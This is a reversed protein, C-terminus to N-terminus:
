QVGAIVVKFVDPKGAKVLEFAEEAQEFNFRNTILRKVDIKGSAVLEVAAPYCGTTYRISGKITL